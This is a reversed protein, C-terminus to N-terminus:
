PGRAGVLRAYLFARAEVWRTSATGRSVGLSTAVEALTMGGYFRQEVLDAHEPKVARLADLAENLALVDFRDTERAALGTDVTVQVGERKRAQRSRIEDTLFNRMVTAAIRLFHLRNPITRESSATLRLFCEDVLLAPEMAFSPARASLYSEALRRLDGAIRRYLEEAARQDGGRADAILRGTEQESM